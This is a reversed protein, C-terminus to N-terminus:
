QTAIPGIIIIFNTHRRVFSSSIGVTTLRLGIITSPVPIHPAHRTCTPESILNAQTSPGSNLITSTIFFTGTLSCFGSTLAFFKSSTQRPYLSSSAIASAELHKFQLFAIHTLPHGTDILMGANM